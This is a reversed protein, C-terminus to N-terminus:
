CFGACSDPCVPDMGVACQPSLTSFTHSDSSLSLFSYTKSELSYCPWPNLAPVWRFTNWPSCAGGMGTVRSKAIPIPKNHRSISVNRRQMLTSGAMFFLQTDSSVFSQYSHFEQQICSSCGAHWHWAPFGTTGSCPSLFIIVIYIIEVRLEKVTVYRHWRKFFFGWFLFCVCYVM